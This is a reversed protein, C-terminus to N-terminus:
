SRGASSVFRAVVLVAILVMAGGAVTTLTLSETRFALSFLMAFVPELCYIVTATAPAVVPQWGNMLHLALIGSVVVLLGMTWLFTGSGFLGAVAAPRYLPASGLALGFIINVAAGAAFMILTMRTLDAKPGLQDVALIQGTFLVAGILTLIEGLLSVPPVLAHGNEAASGPNPMALLAIGLTAIVVALWTMGGVPRRFLLSQAIPAFVVALATLFGSVSPITYRLGVVQLFIGAGLFGGVWRGARWDAATYGRQRPWTLVLYIVAALGFRWGNFAGRAALEARVDGPVALAANFASTGIQLLPFSLGWFVCCLGLVLVAGRTSRGAPASPSALPMDVLQTM